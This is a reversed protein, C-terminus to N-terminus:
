ELFAINDRTILADYNRNEILQDIMTSHRGSIRRAEDSSYNVIGRAFEQGREDLISIVDGREFAGRVETVGASLLSAKREVLARRAGENVVLAAKVTTAFAIWRRKGPLGPQPLFLTGVEEGEFVRTIIDPVKGGAIVTACGSRTAIRAAEIKTRVGGRGVKSSVAAGRALDDIEPTIEAVVPILRADKSSPEATYLGDVDTLIVLLDAEIKSAVLASLKDNDGFNVRVHPSAENPELEATAVTDNENIIPLVGRELLEGLTGRLSLYRQRSSFDEETLLVQAVTVKLREFGDSYLAMLRGQGVAACAQKLPLSQPKHPVKLQQAGLGVAGSSVLLVERGAHRIRALSEIFSYFRSLAPGGDEHTLVATGLKIVVRRAEDIIRRRESTTSM